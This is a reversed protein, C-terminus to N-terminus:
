TLRSFHSQMERWFPSTMRTPKAITNGYESITPKTAALDFKFAPQLPISPSNESQKM